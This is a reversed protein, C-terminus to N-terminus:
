LALFANLFLLRSWTAGFSSSLWRMWEIHVLSIDYRLSYIDRDLSSSASVSKRCVRVRRSLPWLINDVHLVRDKLRCHDHLWLVSVTVVEHDETAEEQLLGKLQCEAAGSGKSVGSRGEDGQIGAGKLIGDRDSAHQVQSGGDCVRLRVSFLARISLESLDLYTNVRLDAINLM